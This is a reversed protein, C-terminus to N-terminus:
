QQLHRNGKAELAKQAWDPDKLFARGIAVLDVLEDRVLQEAHEPQTIHGVGIVPAKVAQKIRSAQPVFYGSVKKLQKPYAGCMGGSVYIIDVGAQELRKAFEVADEV